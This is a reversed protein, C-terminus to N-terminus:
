PASGVQTKHAPVCTTQGGLLTRLDSVYLQQWYDAVAAANQVTRLDSAPTVIILDECELEAWPAPAYDTRRQRAWEEPTTKGQVYRVARVAGQVSVRFHLWASGDNTLRRDM